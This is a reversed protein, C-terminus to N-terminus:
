SEYTSYYEKNIRKDEILELSKDRAQKERKAKGREVEKPTWIYSILENLRQEFEHKPMREM